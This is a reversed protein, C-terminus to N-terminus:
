MYTPHSRDANLLTIASPVVSNSYRKAKQNTKRAYYRWGSPMVSFEKFIVHSPQSKNEPSSTEELSVVSM